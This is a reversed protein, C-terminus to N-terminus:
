SDIVNAGGTIAQSGEGGGGVCECMERRGETCAFCKCMNKHQVLSIDTHKQM